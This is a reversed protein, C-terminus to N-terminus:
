LRTFSSKKLEITQQVALMASIFYEEDNRLEDDGGLWLEELLYRSATELGGDGAVTMTYTAVENAGVPRLVAVKDEVEIVSLQRPAYQEKWEALKHGFRATLKENLKDKAM